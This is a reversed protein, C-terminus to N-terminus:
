LLRTAVWRETPKTADGCSAPLSFTERRCELELTQSRDGRQVRAAIRLVDGVPPSAPREIECHGLDALQERLFAEAVQELESAGLRGRCRAALVRDALLADVLATADGPEVRGYLHGAPLALCNAAFRHGGLHSVESVGVAAARRAVEAALASHVPRGHVACCRDHRGDTCVFLERGLPESGAPAAGGALWEALGPAIRELPVGAARFGARGASFAV